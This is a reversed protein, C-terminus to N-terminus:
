SAEAPAEAATDEESKTKIQSALKAGPGLLAAALNAGPSLIQGLLISIQEERSPWKSVEVLKSATLREGDLVGGQAKFKDFKGSDKDLQVVEKVLSVFDTSGFCVATQGAAGQFLPALSSDSCARRALSNKVVLMRINKSALQNRLDCTTVADMGVTSVMVADTVGALRNKLDRTVLDKVLKSM